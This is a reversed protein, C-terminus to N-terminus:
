EIIISRILQVDLLYGLCEGKIIITQNKEITALDSASTGVEFTCKIVGFGETQLAISPSGEEPFDISEVVGNVEIIKNLYMGNAENEDTEFAAYLAQADMTYNAKLSKVRPATKLFSNYVVFAAVLSILIAIIILHSRKM